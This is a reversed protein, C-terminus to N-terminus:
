RTQNVLRIFDSEGLIRIAQGKTILEETKRHKSSKDFGALRRIDQDGIVLITTSRNVNSSINCGVKAALEAAELRPMSLAGTFVITEGFLPGDPDGQLSIKSGSIPQYAHILWDELPIKTEEIAKLLIEGAARADEQANHHEFKINFERSLNALSYGSTRYQRWTRRAVRASDLWKCEIDALKYKEAVRTLALKDFAMHTVVIKQYLMRRVQDAITPFTPASKTMDETINHIQINISDFYDEPNVLTQWQEAIKGGSFTILGIQCISALDPNATEVDLAVFDM